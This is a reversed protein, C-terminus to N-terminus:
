RGLRKMHKAALRWILYFVSALFVAIVAVVILHYSTIGTPVIPTTTETTEVMIETINLSYRKIYENNYDDRYYLEVVVTKNVLKDVPIELRFATQSAPDIDGIFSYAIRDGYILRIELSRASSIGYNIVLGSVIVVGDKYKAITDRSLIIDIFPKIVVGITTNYLNVTGLEDRYVVAVRVPLSGYVGGTISTTTLGMGAVSAAVAPNYVLTYNLIVAEGPKLAQIYHTTDLPLALPYMPATIVYVNYLPLEGINKVMIELTATSNIFVLPKLSKIVIEQLGGYVPIPLTTDVVEISGWHDIFTITANAKYVGPKALHLNLKTTIYLYDGKGISSSAVQQPQSRIFQLLGAIGQTGLLQSAQVGPIIVPTINVTSANNVSSTMGDPLRLNVVIGTMSPYENNRFLVYYPASKERLMPPEGIWGSAIYELAYRPDSIKLPVIYTITRRLGPGNSEIYYNIVLEAAYLGPTTNAADLKFSLIFEQLSAVPGSVYAKTTYNGSAKFGNPLVLEAEIGAISYPLMNALTVVYVASKTGPYVPWDNSWGADVVIIDTNNITGQFEKVELTRHHVETYAIHTGYVTQLYSVKIDLDVTSKNLEALDAYFIAQCTTSSPLSSACMINNNLFEIDNSTLNVTVASASYRGYNALVITIPARRDGKYVYTPTGSGWYVQIVRIDPKYDSPDSVMINFFLKEKDVVISGGLNKTISLSLVGTYTGPSIDGVDLRLTITCTSGPAVGYTCSGTKDLLKIGNPLEVDYAVSTVQEGLINLLTIEYVINHATPLIPAPQNNYLTRTNAIIFTKEVSYLEVTINKTMTAWYTMGQLTLTANVVITFELNTNNTEIHLGPFSATIIDGYNIINSSTWTVTKGGDRATVGPPLLLKITMHTITDISHSQLTIYLRANDTYNSARGGSWGYDIITLNLMPKDVRLMITNSTNIWTEANNISLLIKVDLYIPITGPSTRNIMISDFSIKFIDNYGYPGNVIVIDRPEGTNRSYVGDPYYAKVVLKEVTAPKTVRYLIYFSNDISNSYAKGTSWDVHIIELVTTNTNSVTIPITYSLTIERCSGDNNSILGKILLTATYNGPRTNEDINIGTFSISTISSGPISVQDRYLTEPTFGQPLKLEVLADTIDLAEMNAIRVVLIEDTSGPYVKTDRWYVSEVYVDLPRETVQLNLNITTKNWYVVNDKQCLIELEIRATVYSTNEKISLTDSLITFVDGYTVPGNVITITTNTGNSFFANRVTIKAVISRLTASDISRLTLYIRTQRLGAYVYDATFGYDLIKLKVAPPKEIEFVMNTSLTANYPVGDPTSLEAKFVLTANYQGPKAEPSIDLNTFRLTNRQDSQTSPISTRTHNPSIINPLLIEATGGTIRSEGTNRYEIVLTAGTMGPYGYPEWYVDILDISLPPYPSVKISVNHIEYTLNYVGTTIEQTYTINITLVYTGPSVSKNVNIRFKFDVIDGSSIEEVIKGDLGYAPSTPTDVFEFGQPLSTIRAYVNTANYPSVYQAEVVLEANSSGPYVDGGTSSKFGTYIINFAPDLSQSTALPIPTLSAILASLMIISLMKNAM